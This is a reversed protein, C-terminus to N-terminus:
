CISPGLVTCSTSVYRGGLGALFRLVILQTGTKAFGCATNFVLYELMSLQLVWRRGYTEALPSVLFPGFAFALLFISLTLSREFASSPPINIDQAISELAPAIMSSSIPGILAFASSVTTIRWREFFSWNKPNEPDNDTWTM